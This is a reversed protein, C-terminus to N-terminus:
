ANENTLRTELTDLLKNVRNAVSVHSTGTERAIQRFSKGRVFHEHLLETHKQDAVLDFVTAMFDQREVTLDNYIQETSTADYVVDGDMNHQQPKNLTIKSIYRMVRGRIYSYAFTTFKGKRSDYRECAILLSIWAEQQLDERTILTDRLCIKFFPKLISFILADWENKPICNLPSNKTDM